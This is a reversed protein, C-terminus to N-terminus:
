PGANRWAGNSYFYLRNNTSDIVLPCFGTIATPAGTPTGACSPIYPFGSTANTPRSAIGLRINKAAQDIIFVFDASTVDGTGSHSYFVTQDNYDYFGSVGTSSECTMGPAAGKLLVTTVINRYNAITPQEFVEIITNEPKPSFDAVAAGKQLFGLSNLKAKFHRALHNKRAYDVPHIGDGYDDAFRLNGSGDNMAATHSDIRYDVGTVTAMIATNMALWKTYATAGNTGGLLAIFRARAPTMTAVIIKSTAKKGANITDILTQYRAMATASSEAYEVADNLGVCVLIWDYTAKSTDATWAAQQQAYLKYCFGARSICGHGFRWYHL